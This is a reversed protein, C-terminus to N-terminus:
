GTVDVGDMIMKQSSTVGGGGIGEVGDRECESGGRVVVM